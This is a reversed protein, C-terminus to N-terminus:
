GPNNMACGHFHSFAAYNGFKNFLFSVDEILEPTIM